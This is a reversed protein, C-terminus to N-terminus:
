NENGVEMLEPNEYINGTVEITHLEDSYLGIDSVFFEGNKFIVSGKVLASGGCTEEQTPPTEMLATVIDGEYIEVGNKDKLGTYQMLVDGTAPSTEFDVEESEWGNLNISAKGIAVGEVWQGFSMHEVQAIWPEDFWTVKVRFKIERIM